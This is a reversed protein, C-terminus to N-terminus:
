SVYTQCTLCIIYTAHICNAIALQTFLMNVFSNQTALVDQPGKKSSPPGGEARFLRGIRGLTLAPGPRYQTLTIWEVPMALAPSQGPMLNSQGVM